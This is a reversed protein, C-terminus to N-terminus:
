SPPIAGCFDRCHMGRPGAELLPHQVRIPPAVPPVGKAQSLCDAQGDPGARPPPLWTARSAGGDNGCADLHDNGANDNAVLGEATLPLAASFPWANISSLPVNGM